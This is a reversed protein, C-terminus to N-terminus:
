RKYVIISVDTGYGEMSIVDLDGGFYRAYARSMPLGYGLGALVLQDNKTHHDNLFQEQIRPDATTYLYSWIHEMQSRPIGGGQDSVKIVVDENETNDAIIVVVQPFDTTSSTTTTTTTTRGGNHRRYKTLKSTHYMSLTSEPREHEHEHEDHIDSEKQQEKQLSQMNYHHEVTARLANKFLELVIYHLHTPIYPFTLDVRGRVVISPAEGFQAMCLRTADQIASQVIDHPSMDQCIMGVYNQQNPQQPSQQPRRGETQLWQKRVALYQGALVRIGVRSAYFRNLFDHCEEQQDFSIIVNDDIHDRLKDLTGRIRKGDRRRRHQRQMKLKSKFEWAGKAMQILVHSHNHYLQELLIGFQQEKTTTNPIDFELLALFSHIYIGKVFQVSPMHNLQPIGDLDQIRHALRISLEYQLLQAFEMLGKEGEEQRALRAAPGRIRGQQYGATLSPKTTTTTTTDDIMIPGQIIAQTKQLIQQLSIPNPHRRAYQEVIKAIDEPITDYSVIPTAAHSKYPAPPPPLHKSSAFHRHQITMTTMTMTMMTIRSSISIRTSGNSVSLYHNTSPKPLLSSFHCATCTKRQISKMTMLPGGSYYFRQNRTRTRMALVSEKLHWMAFSSTVRLWQRIGEERIIPMGLSRKM